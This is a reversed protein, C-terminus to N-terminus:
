VRKLLLSLLLILLYILLYTYYTFFPMHVYELLHEEENHFHFLNLLWSLMPCRPTSLHILPSHSHTTATLLTQSYHSHTTDTLLTQSYHSHTTDTLLPQTTASYHSLLPQSDHLHRDGHFRQFTVDGDIIFTAWQHAPSPYGAYSPPVRPRASFVNSQVGLGRPSQSPCSWSVTLPM